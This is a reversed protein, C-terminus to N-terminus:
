NMDDLATVRRGVGFLHLFEDATFLQASVLDDRDGGVLRLNLVAVLHQDQEIAFSGDGAVAGEVIDLKVREVGEGAPIILERGGIVELHLVAVHVHDAQRAGRLVDAVSAQLGDPVRVFKAVRLGAGLHETEFISVPLGEGFHHKRPQVLEHGRVLEHTHSEVLLHMVRVAFANAVSSDHSVVSSSVWNLEGARISDLAHRSTEVFQINHAAIDRLLNSSLGRIDNVALSALFATDDGGGVVVRAM